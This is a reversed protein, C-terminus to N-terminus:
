YEMENKKALKKLTKKMLQSPKRIGSKGGTLSPRVPLHAKGKGLKKKLKDAFARQHSSSKKFKLKGSLKVKGFKQKVAGVIAETVEAEAEVDMGVQVASPGGGRALKAEDRARRAERKADDRREREVDDAHREKGKWIKSNKGM